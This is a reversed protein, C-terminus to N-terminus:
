FGTFFSFCTILQKLFMVSSAVARCSPQFFLGYHSLCAIHHIGLYNFCLSSSSKKKWILLKTERLGATHLHSDNRKISVFKHLMFIMLFCFKILFFFWDWHWSTRWVCATKFVQVVIQSVLAGIFYYQWDGKSHKWKHQEVYCGKLIFHNFWHQFWRSEIRMFCFYFVSALIILLFYFITNNSLM